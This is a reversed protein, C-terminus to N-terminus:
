LQRSMFLYMSDLSHDIRPPDVDVPVSPAATPLPGLETIPLGPSMKKVAEEQLKGHRFGLDLPSVESSALPRSFLYHGFHPDEVWDVILLLVVLVRSLIFLMTVSRESPTGPKMPDALATSIVPAM